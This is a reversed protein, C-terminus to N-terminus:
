PATWSLRPSLAFAAMACARDVDGPGSSVGIGGALHGDIWIPLGGTLGTQMGGTALAVALGWVLVLVEAVLCVVLNVSFFKTTVLWWKAQMLPLLFFTKGVAVGNMLLFWIFGLIILAFIGWGFTIFSKERANSIDIRAQVVNGSAMAAKARRDFGFALYAPWFLTAVLLIIGIFVLYWFPAMAGLTELAGKVLQCTAFAALTCIFAFVM